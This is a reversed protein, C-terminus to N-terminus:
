TSSSTVKAKFNDVKGYKCVHLFSAYVISGKSLLFIRSWGSGMVKLLIQLSSMELTFLFLERVTALKAFKVKKRFELIVLLNTLNVNEKASCLQFVPIRRRIAERDTMWLLVTVHCSTGKRWTRFAKGAIRSYRM